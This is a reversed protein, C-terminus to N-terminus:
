NVRGLSRSRDRGSFVSHKADPLQLCLWFWYNNIRLFQSFIVVYRPTTPCVSLDVVYLRETGFVHFDSGVCTLADGKKGMMVSGTAHYQPGSKTRLWTQILAILNTLKKYEATIRWPWCRL